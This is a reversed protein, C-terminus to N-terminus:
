LNLGYVCSPRLQVMLKSRTDISTQDDNWILEGLDKIRDPYVEAYKIAAAQTDKIGPKENFTLKPASDQAYRYLGKKTAAWITKEPDIAISNAQKTPMGKYLNQWLNYKDSFVFVGKDTVAYLIDVFLIRKVHSSALGTNIFGQWTEGADKSIFIGSDTALFIGDKNIAISNVPRVAGLSEDAADADYEIDEMSTIFTRKWGAGSNKYVGKDTAAFIEGDLFEIWKVNIGAGEICDKAWTIGNDGSVFIGAETAVCIKRDASFRIHNVYNEKAGVSKFIKKWGSKGDASKFVGNRTCIFVGGESLGIFNISDGSVETSFVATWTTGNDEARYLAKEGSIYIVGTQNADINVEKLDAENIGAVKEWADNCFVNNSFIFIVVGSLVAFFLYKL